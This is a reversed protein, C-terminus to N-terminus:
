PSNDDVEDWNISRSNKKKQARVAIKPVILTGIVLSISVPVVWFPLGEREYPQITAQAEGTLRIADSASLLLSSAPVQASMSALAPHLPVLLAKSVIIAGNLIILLFLSMDICISLEKGAKELRTPCRGIRVVIEDNKTEDIAQVMQNSFISSRGMVEDPVETLLEPLEEILFFRALFTGNFM